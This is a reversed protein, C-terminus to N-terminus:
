PQGKLSLGEQFLQWRAEPPDYVLGDIGATHKGQNEQTVRRIGPTHQVHRSGAVAPSEEGKEM